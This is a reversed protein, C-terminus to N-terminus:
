SKRGGLSPPFAIELELGVASDGPLGCTAYTERLIERAERYEAQTPTEGRAAHCAFTELMRAARKAM